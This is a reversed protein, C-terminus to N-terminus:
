DLFEWSLGFRINSDYMPYVPALLYQTGTINEWIIHVYADGIKGIAFVDMTGSPGFSLETSPIWVGFQDDPRMGTQKSYFNGRVGIKLELAGKALLGQFYVSGNLTVEPYLTISHGYRLRSSQQIYTGTGEAHIDNWRIHAHASLADFTFADPYFYNIDFFSSAPPITDFIVPDHETTRRYTINGSFVNGSSIRGGLELTSFTETIRETYIFVSANHAAANPSDHVLNQSIGGFLQLSTHITLTGEVGGYASFQNQYDRMTAFPTITFFSGTFLESKAGLTIIDKSQVRKVDAYGLFRIGLFHSFLQFKSGRGASALNLKTYIKNRFVSRNEEDRYERLRDFSYLSLSVSMASDEFPFYAATLTYHSNFQKEFSELNMVDAKLGDYISSSNSYDVGGHLGTWTRDYSYVFSLNLTNTVNYRLKTRFMWSDTNSNNFRASYSQSEKNSGFGYHTLAFSLNLGNMINQAFMADTHTYDSIGQSYRLRTVARNNNFNKTVINIAGGGSKGDYFIGDAGTFLEVKDIADVPIMWLNYSGTYYDNYPIGDVMLSVNRGDIGNLILQNQQGASALDRVFVGPKGALIDYLSRYERVVIENEPIITITNGFPEVSGIEPIPVIRIVSDKAAQTTDSM